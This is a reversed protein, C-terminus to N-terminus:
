GAPERLDFGTGKRCDDRLRGLSFCKELRDRRAERVVPEIAIQNQSQHRIDETSPRANSLKAASPARVGIEKFATTLVRATNEAADVHAVYRTLHARPRAM